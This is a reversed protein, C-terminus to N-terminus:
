LTDYGCAYFLMKQCNNKKLIKQINKMIVDILLMKEVFICNM